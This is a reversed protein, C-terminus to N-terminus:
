VGHVSTIGYDKLLMADKVSDPIRSEGGFM